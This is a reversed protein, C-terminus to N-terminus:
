SWRFQRPHILISSVWSAEVAGRLRNQLGRVDRGLIDMLTRRRKIPLRVLGDDDAMTRLRGHAQSTPYAAPATAKRGRKWGGGMSGHM